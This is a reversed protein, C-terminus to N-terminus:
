LVTGTASVVEYPGERLPVNWKGQFVKHRGIEQDSMSTPQKDREEPKEQVELLLLPSLEIQLIDKVTKDVFEKGM